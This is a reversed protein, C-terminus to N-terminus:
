PTKKPAPQETPPPKLFPHEAAPVYKQAAGAYVLVSKKATDYYGTLMPAGAAHGSPDRVIQFPVKEPSATIGEPASNVFVMQFSVRRLILARGFDERSAERTQLVEIVERQIAASALANSDEITAPPPNAVPSEARLIVTVAAATALLLLISHRKM